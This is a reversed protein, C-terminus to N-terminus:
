CVQYNNEFYNVVAIAYCICLHSMTLTHGQSLHLCSVPRPPPRLRQREWPDYTEDQRTRSIGDRDHHGEGGHSDAGVAGGAQQQVHCTHQRSDTSVVCVRPQLCAPHSSLTPIDCSVTICRECVCVCM